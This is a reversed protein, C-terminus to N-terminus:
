GEEYIGDSDDEVDPEPPKYPPAAVVTDCNFECLLIDIEVTDMPFM